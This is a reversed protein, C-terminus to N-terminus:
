KIDKFIYNQIFKPLKVIRDKIKNYDQYEERLRRHSEILDPLLDDGSFLEEDYIGLEILYKIILQTGQNNTNYKNMTNMMMTMMINKQCIGM